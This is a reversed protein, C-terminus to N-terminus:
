LAVDIGRWIRDKGGGLRENTSLNCQKAIERGFKNMSLAHIGTTKCWNQYRAYMKTKTISRDIDIICEEEIFGIVSNNEKRYDDVNRQLIGTTEFMSRSKLRHYGELMWLFIGNAEAFLKHKLDKDQELDKFQRTCKIIILREFFADTKDNVQPMNNLAFIMKCFPSFQFPHGFKKDAPISDGSVISKFMADYISTKANTEISINVLKNFLSAIYHRDTLAELTISTYNEKGLIFQLVKLMTSKGNRGEGLLFLAKEYKSEKTLCLGFFEQVVSVAQDRYDERPNDLIENISKKWIPCPADQTYEIPLQITSKYKPDHPLLTKEDVDLMGNKLNLMKTNNIEDNPTNTRVRISYMIENSKHMSTGTGLKDHIYKRLKDEIIKNFVSGSYEYFENDCYLLTHERMIDDAIRVSSFTEKIVKQSIPYRSVSQAIKSVESAPLPPECEKDNKEMLVSEITLQNLGMARLKGAYSTLAANRKSKKIKPLEVTIIPADVKGNMIKAMWLPEEQIPTSDLDHEVEYVYAKGEVVSPVAIVYGGDGRVDIGPKLGTKCGVTRNEPYKFFIHRGGSWTLAEVTTPLDGHERILDSLSDEGGAYDKVDIDLVWFGNIKGTVLGINANPYKKFMKEVENPDNSASKFGHATLPTKGGVKCPFVFWGRKAYAIAHERYM